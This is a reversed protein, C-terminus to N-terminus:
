LFLWLLGALSGLAAGVSFPIIMMTKDKEKNKKGESNEIIRNAEAIMDDEGVRDFKEGSKLVFYAYEFMNEDEGRVVIVRRQCGKIM